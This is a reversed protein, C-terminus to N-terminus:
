AAGAVFKFHGNILSARTLLDIILGLPNGCLGLLGHALDPIDVELEGVKVEREEHDLTPIVNERKSITLVALILDQVVPGISRAVLVLCRVLILIIVEKGEM